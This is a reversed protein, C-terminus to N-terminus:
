LVKFGSNLMVALAPFLFVWGAAEPYAVVVKDFGLHMREFERTLGRTSYWKSLPKDFYPFTHPFFELMVGIVLSFICLTILALKASNVIWAVFPLPFNNFHTASIKAEDLEALGFLSYVTGVIIFGALWRRYKMVLQSTDRLIALARFGSRTSTYNNMVTFIRLMLDSRFILAISVVVAIMGSVLSFLMISHSVQGFTYNNFITLM